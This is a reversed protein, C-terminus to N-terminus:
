RFKELPKYEEKLQRASSFPWLLTCAADSGRGRQMRSLLWSLIVFRSNLIYKLFREM